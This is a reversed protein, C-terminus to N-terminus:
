EAEKLSMHRGIVNGQKQEAAKEVRCGGGAGQSNHSCALSDGQRTHRFEHFM